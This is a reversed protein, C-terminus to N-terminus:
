TKFAHLSRPALTGFMIWKTSPPFSYDVGAAKNGSFSDPHSQISLQITELGTGRSPISDRSNLKLIDPVGRLCKRVICFTLASLM